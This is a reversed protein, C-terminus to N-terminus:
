YKKYSFDWITRYESHSGDKKVRITEVSMVYGNKDLEYNIDLDEVGDRSYYTIKKPLKTCNKGLLGAHSLIATATPVKWSFGSFDRINGGFSNHGYFDSVYEFLFCPNFNSINDDDSYSIRWFCREVIDNDGKVYFETVKRLNGDTYEFEIETGDGLSSGDVIKTLYGNEYIYKYRILLDDTIYGQSNMAFNYSYNDKEGNKYTRTYVIEMKEYNIDYNYIYNGMLCEINSIRKRSDYSIDVVSNGDRSGGLTRIGYSIIRRDTPPTGAVQFDEDDSSCSALVFMLIFIIKFTKLFRM